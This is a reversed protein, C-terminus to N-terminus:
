PIPVVRYIKDGTGDKHLGYAVCSHVRTSM